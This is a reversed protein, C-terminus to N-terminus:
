LLCLWDDRLRGMCAAHLLNEGRWDDAEPFLRLFGFENVANM